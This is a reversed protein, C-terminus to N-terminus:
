FVFTTWRLESKKTRNIFVHLEWKKNVIIEQKLLICAQFLRFELSLAIKVAIHLMQGCCPLSYLVDYRRERQCDGGWSTQSCRESWVFLSITVSQIRAHTGGGSPGQEIPEPQQIVIRNTVRSARCRKLIPDEVLSSETMNNEGIIDVKGEIRHFGVKRGLTTCDRKIRQCVGTVNNASTRWM